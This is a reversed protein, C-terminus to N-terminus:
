DAYYEPKKLEDLVEARKDAPIDKIIRMLEALTHVDMIYGGVEVM